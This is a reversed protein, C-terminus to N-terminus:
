LKTDLGTVSKFVEQLQDCYVNERTAITDIRLDNRNRRINQFTMTYTDSPDLRVSVRNIRRSFTGGPLQFRLENNDAIFHKAGTMLAFRKGGLQELITQAITTDTAM